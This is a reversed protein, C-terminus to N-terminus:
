KWRYIFNKSIIINSIDENQTLFRVDIDSSNTTNIINQVPPQQNGFGQAYQAIMNEINDKQRYLQNIMNAGNNYNYPM